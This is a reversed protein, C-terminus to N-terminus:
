ASMCRWVPRIRRFSGPCSNGSGSLQISAVLYELALRGVGTGRTGREVYVSHETISAYCPRRRYLGASAWAVM